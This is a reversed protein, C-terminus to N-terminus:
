SGIRRIINREQGQSFKLSDVQAGDSLRSLRMILRTLGATLVTVSILLLLYLLQYQALLQHVALSLWVYLLCCCSMM